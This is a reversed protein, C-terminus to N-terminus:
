EGRRVSFFEGQKEEDWGTRTYCLSMIFNTDYYGFFSYFLGDSCGYGYGRSYHSSYFGYGGRRRVHEYGCCSIGNARAVLIRDYSV